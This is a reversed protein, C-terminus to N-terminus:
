NENERTTKGGRGRLLDKEDKKWRIM